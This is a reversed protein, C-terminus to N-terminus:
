TVGFTSIFCLGAVVFIRYLLFLDEKLLKFFLSKNYKLIKICM